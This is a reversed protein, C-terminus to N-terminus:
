KVPSILYIVHVSQKITVPALRYESSVVQPSAERRQLVELTESAGFISRQIEPFTVPSVAFLSEINMAMPKLTKEARERANSIAKEWVQSEIEKEKSLGGDIGSFEVGGIAILDDILKPFVAIDRVKVAFPRTVIYGALKGRNRQSSVEDEFQPESRLDAAIVDKEAIKRENFLDLIKRAKGQVEENAKAQDANRAVLDFRLTVQDALKEIEAKGEIYIYPRDPLGGEALLIGPLSLFAFLLVKM